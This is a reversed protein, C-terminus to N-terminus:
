KLFCQLNGELLVAGSELFIHSSMKTWEQGMSSNVKKRHIGDSRRFIMIKRTEELNVKLTCSRLDMM